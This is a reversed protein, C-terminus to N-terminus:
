EVVHPLIVYEKTTIALCKIIYYMYQYVESFEVPRAQPSNVGGRRIYFHLKKGLAVGGQVGAPRNTRLRQWAVVATARNKLSSFRGKGGPAYISPRTGPTGTRPSRISIMEPKKIFKGNGPKALWFITRPQRFEMQRRHARSLRGIQPRVGQLCGVVLVLAAKRAPGKRLRLAPAVKPIRGRDHPELHRRAEPFLM